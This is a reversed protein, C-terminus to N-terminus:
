TESIDIPNVFVFQMTSLRFRVCIPLSVKMEEVMREIESSPQKVGARSRDLTYIEGRKGGIVDGSDQAKGGRVFTKKDEDETFSAVFSDFVKAAEEEEQKKKIEKEERAKQFRSKKQTGVAFAALKDTTITKMSGPQIKQSSIGWPLAPNQPDSM